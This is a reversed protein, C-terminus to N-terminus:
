RARKRFLTISRYRYLIFGRTRPLVGHLRSGLPFVVRLEVGRHRLFTYPKETAASGNKKAEGLIGGKFENVFRTKQVPTLKKSMKFYGVQYFHEGQKSWEYVHGYGERGNENIDKDTVKVGARPIDISFGGDGSSFGSQGFAPGFALVILVASLLSTLNLTKKM